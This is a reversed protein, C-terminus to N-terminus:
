STETCNQILSMLIYGNQLLHTLELKLNGGYNAKQLLTEFAIKKVVNRYLKPDVDGM